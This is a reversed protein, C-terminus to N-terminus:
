LEVRNRREGALFAAINGAVERICRERAELAGWGMHPTLCVNPLGRLAAFPHSEPFPEATYVDAGLGGLRGSLIAEALAAEDAVAGRAVNIFVADKKMLALKERSFLGRTSDNLPLHVSLIDSERCLTDLDVAPEGPGPHARFPLVRCGLAAAVAGVQRGIQGYGAIGWTKGALERYVPTLINATRGASYRGSAVADTYEPLHCTLSLAMAATLQAVSVTSYGPVNCVGIGRARCWATDVNDYGTAALCILKLTENGALNSENLRIKNIVAIDAGALRLSVEEPATAPCVRLEGLAALPELSLDAGLTAADPVAIVM